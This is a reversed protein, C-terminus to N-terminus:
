FLSYLLYQFIERWLKNLVNSKHETPNVCEGLLRECGVTGQKITFM